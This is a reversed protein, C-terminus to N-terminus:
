AASLSSRSVRGSSRTMMSCNIRATVPYGSDIFRPLAPIPVARVDEVHIQRGSDAERFLKRCAVNWIADLNM